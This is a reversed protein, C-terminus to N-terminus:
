RPSREPPPTQWAALRADPPVQWAMCLVDESRGDLIRAGRKIGEHEFGHREYLAIAPGNSGYVELEVRRIGAERSADLTARLLARGLGRGRQAPLIGIGLTASHRFGEHPKRLTDCWGVLEGRVLAVLQLLDPSAMFARVEALPPAELFALYRRERAVVDLCRRFPEADGSTSRRIVREDDPLTSM